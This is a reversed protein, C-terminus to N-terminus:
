VRTSTSRALLSSAALLERWNGPEMPSRSTTIFNGNSSDIAGMDTGLLTNGRETRIVSEGTFFVAPQITTTATMMFAFTGGIDGQLIGRTCILPPSVPCSQPPLVISEFRGHVPECDGRALVLNPSIALALVAVTFFARKPNPFRNRTNLSSHHMPNEEEQRGM